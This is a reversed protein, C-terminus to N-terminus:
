PSDREVARSIPRAVTAPHTSAEDPHLWLSGNGTAVRVAHRPATRSGTLSALEPGTLTRFLDLAADASLFGEAVSVDPEVSRVAAVYDPWGRVGGVTVTGATGRCLLTPLSHERAEERDRDVAQRVSDREMDAALRDHDLGAVGVTVALARAKTDAPRGLVFTSERLRRLVREGVQGGQEQAAKAALVAPWSSVSRWALLQPMPARTRATIDALERRYRVLEDMPGDVADFLIGFARRWRVQEGLALRLRRYVPEAGWAWPCAPDTYEVVDLSM